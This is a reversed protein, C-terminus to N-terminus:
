AAVLHRRFASMVWGHFPAQTYRYVFWPLRPGFDHIATILTRTGKVERLEFRGRQKSLSLLGGSVYFLQRDPTSRAEVYTLILLPSKMFFLRFRCTKTEDVDVKLLGLFAHPLWDTYESAAWAADKGEPLTMRQVSRVLSLPASTQANPPAVSKPPESELSTARPETASEPNVDSARANKREEIALRVAETVPIMKIGAMAALSHEKAVMEHRLSEVLPGVLAGSAGTVLTVWLRSLSPSFFPVPIMPRRVGILKATLELLARYTLVEPTGIDYTKGVCAENGAAFALLQVVDSVAVPQTRTQTWGPCVLAPLREVLRVLMEFSSGGGGLVLGARLTTVPTGYRSLCHEVEHRSRLHPSLEGGEPLLGGLYVIQKVGAKAAARGFNDACLLDLDEFRAQTLRASPMMSHVLYIAVEAGELALESQRLNFLDTQRWSNIGASAPGTRSRGLGRVHFRESLSSALAKGIFGSAGSLALTPKDDLVVAVTYPLRRASGLNSRVL